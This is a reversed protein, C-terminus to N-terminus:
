DYVVRGGLVGVRELRFPDAVLASPIELADGSLAVHAPAATASPQATETTPATTPTATSTVEAATVPTTTGAATTPQTDPVVTTAVAATTTPEADGNSCAALTVSAAVVTLWPAVRRFALRRPSM